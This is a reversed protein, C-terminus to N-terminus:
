GICVKTLPIFFSLLGTKNKREQELIGKQEPSNKKEKEHEVDDLEDQDYKMICYLTKENHKNYIEVCYNFLGQFTNDVDTNANGRIYKQFFAVISQLYDLDQEDLSRNDLMYKIEKIVDIDVAFSRAGFVGSGVRCKKLKSM